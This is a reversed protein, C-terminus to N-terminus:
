MKLLDIIESRNLLSSVLVTLLILIVIILKSVDQGRITGLQEPDQTLYAAGGFTEEGILVYDCSAVFFALQGTGPAAVQLAGLTAGLTSLQVAEHSFSGAYVIGAPQERDMLAMTATAYSQDPFYHLDEAKFEEPNGEVIYAQRATEQVLLFMDPHASITMLRPGLRATFRALYSLFATSVITYLGHTARTWWGTVLLTPKGTETARGVLEEVADIAPLKRIVPVKGIKASRLSYYILFSTVILIILDAIRDEVFM